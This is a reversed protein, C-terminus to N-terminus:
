ATTLGAKALAQRGGCAVLGYGAAANATDASQHSALSEGLRVRQAAGFTQEWIGNYYATAGVGYGDLWILRFGDAHLDNHTSTFSAATMGSYAVWGSTKTSKEFIAAFRAQGSSESGSIRIMRLNYPPATWANFESQLTTGSMGHREVWPIAHSTTISTLFLVLLLDSSKPSYM